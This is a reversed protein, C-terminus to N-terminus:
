FLDFELLSGKKESAKTGIDLNIALRHRQWDDDLLLFYGFLQYKYVEPDVSSNFPENLATSYILQGLYLGDAIEVVEDLCFGIPVAGGNMPYRYHFQFVDKKKDTGNNMDLISKQNAAGMFAYGQREFPSPGQQSISQLGADPTRYNMDVIRMITDMALIRSDQLNYGYVWNKSAEEQWFAKDEDTMGNDWSGNKLHEHYLGPKGFYHDRNKKVQNYHPASALYTKLEKVRQPYREALDDSEDLMMSLKRPSIKEFSKGAWPFIYKGITKWTINLINPGRDNESLMNALASPFMFGDEIESEAKDFLTDSFGLHLNLTAGHYYDFGTTTEKEGYWDGPKSATARTNYGHKGHGQFLGAKIGPAVGARFLQNLTEFHKVHDDLKTQSDINESIRKLMQLISESGKRLSKIDPNDLPKPSKETIFTTFKEKLLAHKKWGESWELNEDKVSSSSAIYTKNYGLEKFGFEGPRPRLQPFANDAYVLKAYEPEMMLFYGNNQYGYDVTEKIPKNLLMAVIKQWWSAAQHPQYKEGLPIHQEGPIFPLDITGISYHHTAYILQGLYIGDAIKVVEDVLRTMPYAPNLSDWRYNLQYVEKGHMEPVVSKGKDALFYGGTKTYPINKEKDINEPLLEGQFGSTDTTLPRDKLHWTETLAPIGLSQLANPSPPERFFNRGIRTTAENYKSIIQPDNNCIDIVAQKTIPEYTKGMWLGTDAFTANWATAMWEISAIASREEGVLKVTDKFYDSDRISVPIGIMPGDLPVATGCKFLTELKDHVSPWLDRKHNDALIKQYNAMLEFYASESENSSVDKLIEVLQSSLKEKTDSALDPFNEVSLYAHM